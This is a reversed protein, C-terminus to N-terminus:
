ATSVKAVGEDNVWASEKKFIERLGNHAYRGNHETNRNERQARGKSRM